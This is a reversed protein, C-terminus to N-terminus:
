AVSVICHSGVKQLLVLEKQCMEKPNTLIFANFLKVFTVDENPKNHLSNPCDSPFYTM